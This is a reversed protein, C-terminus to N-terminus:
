EIIRLPINSLNTNGSNYTEIAPPLKRKERGKQGVEVIDFSNLTIDEAQGAEIKTLDTEIVKTERNERRFITITNAIADKALGGASSIARSLTIKSRTSIQKPNNVGGIVYIPEAELVTIIDGSLIQPNAETNGSLLDSIKINITISDNSQSTKVFRERNEGNATALINEDPSKAECSLNQPRFIQIEGSIRDTLGGSLILLENLNVARKIQFRHSRKVAGQLISLARNSRDLIKVVVKPERLMKSYGKAVDSAVEEERRCLAYIPEDVFDIGDLFGEPNVRGRWDYETSGIVDVDILDGFHVRFEKNQVNEATNQRDTTETPTQASASNQFFLVCLFFLSIRFQKQYSM